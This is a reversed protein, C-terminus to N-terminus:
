PSAETITSYITAKAILEVQSSVFARTTIVADDIIRAVYVYAPMESIPFLTQGEHRTSILLLTIDRSGLSFRQGPLPPDIEILMYDDRAADRLRDIAWCARPQTLPEFEGAATLFFDPAGSM